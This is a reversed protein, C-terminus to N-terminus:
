LKEQLSQSISQVVQQAIVHDPSKASVSLPATSCQEINLNGKLHLDSMQVRIHHMISDARLSLSEPLSLNIQDIQIM